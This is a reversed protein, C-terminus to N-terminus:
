VCRKSPCDSKSIDWESAWVYTLWTMGLSPQKVIVRFTLIRDSSYKSTVHENNDCM